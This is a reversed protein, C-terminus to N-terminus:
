PPRIILINRQKTNAKWSTDMLADASFFAPLKGHPLVGGSGAMPGKGEREVAEHKM